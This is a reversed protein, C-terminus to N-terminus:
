SEGLKMREPVVTGDARGLEILGSTLLVGGIGAVLLASAAPPLLDTGATGVVAGTAFGLQPATVGVLGWGRSATAYLGGVAVTEVVAHGTLLAVAALGLGADATYVGAVLVGEVTRHTLIAGFTSDACPGCDTLARNRVLWALSIGAVGGVVAYRGRDVGAAVLGLAGLAVVLWVIWQPQSPSPTQAPRARRRTVVGLGVLFSVLVSLSVVVGFAVPSQASSTGPDHGSAVGPVRTMALLVGIAVGLGSPRLREACM